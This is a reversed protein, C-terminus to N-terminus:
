FSNQVASTTRMLQWIISRPSVCDTQPIQMVPGSIVARLNMIIINEKDSMPYNHLSVISEAGDYHMVGAPYIINGQRDYLNFSYDANEEATGSTDPGANLKTIASTQDLNRTFGDYSTLSGLTYGNDIMVDAVYDTIFANKM